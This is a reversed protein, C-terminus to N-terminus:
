HSDMEEIKWTINVSESIIIEDPIISENLTFGAGDFAKSMALNSTLNFSQELNNYSISQIEKLKVNMTKALSEAKEKARKCALKISKNKHKEQNKLAFNINFDVNTKSQIIADILHVLISNDLKFSAKLSHNLNYGKFVEKWDGDIQESTFWPSVNYFSTKFVNKNFGHKNFSNILNNYRLNAQSILEDYNEKQELIIINLEIQDPKCSIPGTASVSIIKDLM